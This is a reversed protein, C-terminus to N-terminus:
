NHVIMRAQTPAPPASGMPKDILTPDLPIWKAGIRTEVYVHSYERPVIFGVAVFRTPHGISELLTALLTSKDDCDGAELEMTAMPTQVTEIGHIDRVFRIHDRVWTFLADVEGVWDKQGVGQVLSLATQRIQMSRKFQRVFRSMLRVTAYTGAEGSPLDALMNPRHVELHM